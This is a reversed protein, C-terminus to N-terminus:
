LPIGIIKKNYGEKKITFKYVGHRPITKEEDSELNKIHKILDEEINTFVVKENEEEYILVNDPIEINRVHEEHLAINRILLKNLLFTYIVAVSIISIFSTYHIM